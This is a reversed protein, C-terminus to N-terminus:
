QAPPRLVREMFLERLEPARQKPVESGLSHPGAPDHEVALEARRDPAVKLMARGAEVELWGGMLYAFVNLDSLHPSKAADPKNKRWLRIAKALVETTPLNAGELRRVHEEKLGALGMTNEALLVWPVSSCAVVVAALPDYRLNWGIATRGRGFVGGNTVVGRLKKVDEPFRVVAQGVNTMAGITLVYAEGPHEAAVKAILEDAGLECAPPLGSEDPALDGQTVATGPAVDRDARPMSHVYGAAVPIEPRGYATTVRRAIRSRAQTDGDVTTIGVVEFEPSALAFATVLIDDIDEGIDTDIIIKVSIPTGATESVYSALKPEANTLHQGNLPV